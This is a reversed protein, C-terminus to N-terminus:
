SAIRVIPTRSYTQSGGAYSYRFYTSDLLTRIIVYHWVDSVSSSAVENRYCISYLEM